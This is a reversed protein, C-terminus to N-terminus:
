IRNKKDQCTQDLCELNKSAVEAAYQKQARQHEVLMRGYFSAESHNEPTNNLRLNERSLRVLAELHGLKEGNALKCLNDLKETRKEGKIDAKKTDAHVSAVAKKTRMQMWGLAITSVLTFLGLWVPDSMQAIM